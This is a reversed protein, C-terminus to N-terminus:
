GKVMGGKELSKMLKYMRAAGKRRSGNGANRVAKATFVFEGDSLMAPIDDSTGTGPGNIPGSKRPFERISGGKAAMVPEATGIFPSYYRPMLQTRRRGYDPSYQARTLGTPTVVGRTAAGLEGGYRTERYPDYDGRSRYDYLGGSFFQPNDRMYDTGTYYPDYVPTDDVPPKEFGGALYTAGLGAAALPAYKSFFGPANAEYAAQYAADAGAATPTLGDARTSQIYQTRAKTGALIAEQDQQQMSPRSPSFNENYFDKVPSYVQEARAGFSYTDNNVVPAPGGYRPGGIEVGLSADQMSIAEPSQGGGTYYTNATQQGLGELSVPAVDPVPSTVLSRQPTVPAGQRLSPDMPQSTNVADARVYQNNGAADKYVLYEKGDMGVSFQQGSLADQRMVPTLNETATGVGGTSEIPDLSLNSGDAAADTPATTRPAGGPLYGKQQGYGVGAATIGGIAGAKLAQEPTMGSALGFGTGLAAGTFGQNLVSGAAGPMYSSISPAVTGGIYGMAAGKLVDQLNGGSLASMGGGVIAATGATGIGFGAAVPGLAMTAGITLAIRGIDSKAVDKVVNVVTKVPATVTKWVSSFFGYEPLGTYPNTTGLGGAQRLMQAEQPNIHALVTDGHRGRSQLAKAADALGGSKMAMPEQPGPGMAEPSVNQAQQIRQENLAALMTAIFSQDFEPPFDGEDIAGEEIGARIVEKYQDPYQMMYELLTIFAEIESPKLNLAGLKQSIATKYEGFAQPNTEQMASSAANYADLSSVYGQPPQQQQQMPMPAAMIGENAM